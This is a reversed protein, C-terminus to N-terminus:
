KKIAEFSNETLCFKLDNEYEYTVKKAPEGQSIKGLALVKQLYLVMQPPMGILQHDTEFESNYPYVDDEIKIIKIKPKGGLSSWKVPGNANLGSVNTFAYLNQTYSGSMALSNLDKIEAPVASALLYFSSQLSVKSDFTSGQCSLYSYKPLEIKQSKKLYKYSTFAAALILVTIIIKM